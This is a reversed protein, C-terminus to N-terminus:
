RSDAYMLRKGGVGALARRTREADDVGNAERNNYRFDFESLYRHLHQESVHHYIGNLGRKLIAFFSEATNTHVDGRVYEDMHNIVEHTAFEKSLGQYSRFADTM